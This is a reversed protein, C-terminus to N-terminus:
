EVGGSLRGRLSDTPKLPRPRRTARPSLPTEMVISRVYTDLKQFSAEGLMARLEALHSSISANREDFAQKLNSTPATGALEAQVRLAHAQKMAAQIKVSANRGDINAAYAVQKLMLGEAESLGALRQDHTRFGHGDKGESELKAAFDDLHEVHAFFAKYLIYDPVVPSVSSTQTAIPIQGGTVPSTHHTVPPQAIVSTALLFPVVLVLCSTPIGDRRRM